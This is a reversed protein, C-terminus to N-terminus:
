DGDRHGYSSLLDAGLTGVSTSTEVMGMFPAERTKRFILSISITPVPTRDLTTERDATGIRGLRQTLSPFYSQYQRASAFVNETSSPGDYWMDVVEYHNYGALDFFFRSTYCFYGHDVYGVSPVVHMILGDPKAADHVAAFTNMQNLIHESTGCNIVSDYRGVLDKPLRQVNLDVYRTKYGLAIDISDYDMGAAELMEGVFSENRASGTEDLGSGAALRQAFADLDPRPTPNHRRVFAAIEGADASYLNSSGLDLLARGRGLLKYDEMIHVYSMTIGM